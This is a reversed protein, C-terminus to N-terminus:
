NLSSVQKVFLTKQGLKATLAAAFGLGDASFVSKFIPRDAGVWSSKSSTSGIRYNIKCIDTRLM